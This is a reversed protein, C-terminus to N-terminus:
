SEALRELEDALLAQSDVWDCGRIGRSRVYEACRKREAAATALVRRRLANILSWCHGVKCYRAGLIDDPHELLWDIDRELERCVECADDVMMLEGCLECVESAM